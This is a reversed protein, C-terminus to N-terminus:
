FDDRFIVGRRRVSQPPNRARLLRLAFAMAFCVAHAAAILEEPLVESDSSLDGLGARGDNPAVKFIM